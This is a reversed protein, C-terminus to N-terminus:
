AKIILQHGGPPPKRTIMTRAKAASRNRVTDAEMKSSWESRLWVSSADEWIMALFGAFSRAADAREKNGEEYDITRESRLVVRIDTSQTFPATRDRSGDCM